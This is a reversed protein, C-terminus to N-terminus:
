RRARFFGRLLEGSQQELLGIEVRCQHNLKTNDLVNFISGAAGARPERAAIVVREIRAHILAGACMACPELTVYLTSDPLRYNQEASCASRLAQIEAHASPDHNSIPQNFGSGILEGDRVLVAGVPVEDLDQAQEALALAHQMWQIDDDSFDVANSVSSTM